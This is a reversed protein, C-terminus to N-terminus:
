PWAPGRLGALGRPDQLVRDARGRLHHEPRQGSLAQGRQQLLRSHLGRSVSPQQPGQRHHDGGLRDRGAGLAGGGPGPPGQGPRHRLHRPGGARAPQASLQGHLRGPDLGPLLPQPLGPGDPRAPQAGWEGLGPQPSPRGPRPHRLRLPSQLQHRGRLGHLLDPLRDRLRRRGGGGCERHDSRRGQWQHGGAQREAPYFAQLYEDHFCPRKCFQRYWPKLAEATAPDNVVAEARARIREMTAFDALEMLEALKEPSLGAAGEKRAIFVLERFAETWGDNVLDEEAYGGSLLLNFNDMRHNQWGPPLSRVWDADIPQDNRVNVASPTRQFVYLQGAGDALHPVCQVATAGTGIIGIRKDGIRDLGGLVSGGTDEYDWRSTHFAHGKFTEIGPIGPLKPKNLPGNSMVVFRARMADGQNTTIIWRQAAEDWSLDKVSTQFCADEYLNFHRAIRKSHEFIEPAKTYRMEPIFGTEELLPLYVLSEIDCAAGPYRNWYWTGGFDGAAEIMRLSKVGAERLRAGALLGGFGGGIVVVEVEDTLPARQIPAEIYPDDGFDAFRGAIQLYQENGDARIRKDREARYRDRLADPDFSAEERTLVKGGSAVDGM